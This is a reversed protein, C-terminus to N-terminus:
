GQPQKPGTWPNPNVKASMQRNPDHFAAVAGSLSTTRAYKAMGM